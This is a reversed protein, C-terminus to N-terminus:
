PIRPQDLSVAPAEELSNLLTQRASLIYKRVQAEDIAMIGAIDRYSLEAIDILTLASRQSNSLLPLKDLLSDFSYQLFSHQSEFVGDDSVRWLGYLCSCCWVWFLRGSGYISPKCEQKLGAMLKNAADRDLTWCLALQRM